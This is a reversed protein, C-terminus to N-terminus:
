VSYYKALLIIICGQPKYIKLIIVLLINTDDIPKNILETPRAPNSM